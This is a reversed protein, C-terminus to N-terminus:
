HGGCTGERAGHGNTGQEPGKNERSIGKYGGKHAGTNRVSLRSAGGMPVPPSLVPHWSVAASRYMISLLLCSKRSSLVITYTRHDIFHESGAM